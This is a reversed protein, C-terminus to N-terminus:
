HAVTETTKSPSRAAVVLSTLRPLMHVLRGRSRGARALRFDRYFSYMNYCLCGVQLTGSVSASCYKSDSQTPLIEILVFGGM